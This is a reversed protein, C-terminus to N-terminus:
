RRRMARLMAYEDQRPVDGLTDAVDRLFCALVFGKKEGDRILGVQALGYGVLGLHDEPTWDPYMNERNMGEMVMGRPIKKVAGLIYHQALHRGYHEGYTSAQSPDRSQPMEEFVRIQNAWNSPPGLRPTNPNLRPARLM